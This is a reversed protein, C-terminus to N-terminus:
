EYELIEMREDQYKWKRRMKADGGIEGIQLLRLGAFIPAPAPHPSTPMLFRWKSFDYLFNPYIAV